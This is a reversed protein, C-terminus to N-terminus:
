RTLPEICLSLSSEQACLMETAPAGAEVIVEGRLWRGAGVRVVYPHPGSDRFTVAVSGARRITVHQGRHDELDLDVLVSAPAQWRVRAGRQVNVRESSVEDPTVAIVFETSAALVLLIVAVVTNM